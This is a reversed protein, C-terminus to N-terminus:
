VSQNDRNAFYPNDIGLSALAKIELAEMKAAEADTEHDHGTLHALGHILLHSLHHRLQKGAAEADDRAVGYAIAIDGLLPAARADAAFSLVDTPTDKGRFQANLVQLADNDALLVSVLGEVALVGAGAALADRCVAEVDGLAQWRADDVRLDLEIM